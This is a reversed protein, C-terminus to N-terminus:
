ASMETRNNSKWRPCFYWDGYSKHHFFHFQSLNKRQTSRPKEMLIMGGICRVWENAYGEHLIIKPANFKVSLIFAWIKEAAGQEIFM